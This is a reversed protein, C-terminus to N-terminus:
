IEAKKYFDSYDVKKTLKSVVICVIFSLIMAAVAFQPGYAKLTAFITVNPLVQNILMSAAPVFAVVFGVIMSSFAGKKNIFKLYLSLMYPALFSGSLIGWSYSMM